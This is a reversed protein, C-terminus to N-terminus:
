LRQEGRGERAVATECNGGGWIGMNGQRRWDGSGVTGGTEGRELM